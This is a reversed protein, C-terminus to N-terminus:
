ENRKKRGFVRIQVRPSFIETTCHPMSDDFHWCKYKSEDVEHMQDGVRYQLHGGGDSVNLTIAVGGNRFYLLNDRYRADAHVIGKSPPTQGVLRVCSVYDLDFKGIIDILSTPTDTKWQWATDYVHWIPSRGRFTDLYCTDNTAPIGPIHTFNYNVFTKYKNEILKRNEDYHTVDDYKEFYGDKDYNSRGETYIVTALFSKDFMNTSMLDDYLSQQDFDVDIPQFASM